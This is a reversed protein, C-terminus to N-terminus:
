NCDNEHISETSNKLTIQVTSSNKEKETIDFMKSINPVSYMCHKSIETEM